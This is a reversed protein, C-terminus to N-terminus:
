VVNPMFFFAYAELEYLFSSFGIFFCAIASSVASQTAVPQVALASVALCSRTINNDIMVALDLRKQIIYM